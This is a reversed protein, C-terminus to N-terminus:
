IYLLGLWSLSFYSIHVTNLQNQISNAKFSILVAYSSIKENLSRFSRFGIAHYFIYKPVRHSIYVISVGMEEDKFM